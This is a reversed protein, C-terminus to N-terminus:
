IQHQDVGLKLKTVRTILLAVVCQNIHILDARRVRRSNPVAHGITCTADYFVTFFLEALRQQVM